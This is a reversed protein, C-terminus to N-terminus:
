RSDLYQFVVLWCTIPKPSYGGFLVRNQRTSKNMPLDQTTHEKSIVNGGMINGSNQAVSQETDKELLLFFSPHTIDNLIAM